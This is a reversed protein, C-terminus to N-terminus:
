TRATMGLGLASLSDILSIGGGTNNQQMIAQLITVIEGLLVNTQLQPDLKQLEEASFVGLANALALTAETRQDAEANKLDSWAQARSVNSTYEKSEDIYRIWDSLCRQFVSSTSIFTTSIDNHLQDLKGVVTASTDPGIKASFLM